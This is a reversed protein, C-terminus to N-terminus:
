RPVCRLPLAPVAANGDREVPPQDNRDDLVGVFAVQEAQATGDGVQCAARAALLQLRLLDGASGERDGVGAHEAREEPHGDDVLRLDRDQADAVDLLPGDYEVIRDRDPRHRIEREAVVMSDDIAGYSVLEHRDHFPRELVPIRVDDSARTSCACCTPRVISTRRSPSTGYLSASARWRASTSSRRASRTSPRVPTQTPSSFSAAIPTRM